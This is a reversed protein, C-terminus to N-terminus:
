FINVQPSSGVNGFLQAQEAPADGYLNGQDMGMGSHENGLYGLYGGSYGGLYGSSGSLSAPVLDLMSSVYPVNNLVGSQKIASGVFLFTSVTAATLAFAPTIMSSYRSAAYILGASTAALAATKVYGSQLVSPVGPVMSMVKDYVMGGLVPLAFGAALGAMMPVDLVKGM